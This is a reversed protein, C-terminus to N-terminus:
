SRVSTRKRDWLVDTLPPLFSMIIDDVYSTHNLAHIGWQWPWMLVVIWLLYLFVRILFLLTFMNDLVEPLLLHLTNVVRSDQFNVDGGVLLSECILKEMDVFLSLLPLIQLSAELLTAVEWRKHKRHIFEKPHICLFGQLPEGAVEGGLPTLGLRTRTFVRLNLDVDGWTPLLLAAYPSRPYGRYRDAHLSRLPLISLPDIEMPSRHLSFPSFSFGNCIM